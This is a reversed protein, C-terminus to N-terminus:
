SGAGEQGSRPRYRIAALQEVTMGGLFLRIIEILAGSEWLWQFFDILRDLIPVQSESDIAIVGGGQDVFKELSAIYVIDTLDRDRLVSEAQSRQSEDGFRALRRLQRDFARRQARVRFKM